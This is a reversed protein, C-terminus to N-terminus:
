NLSLWMECEEQMADFEDVAVWDRRSVALAQAAKIAEHWEVLLSFEELSNICKGVASAWFSTVEAAFKEAKQYANM